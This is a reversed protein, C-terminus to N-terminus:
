RRQDLDDRRDLLARRLTDDTVPRGAALCDGTFDSVSTPASPRGAATARMRSPQVPRNPRRTVRSSRGEFVLKLYNDEDGYIILGAQPTTAAYIPEPRGQDDVSGPSGAPLDLLVPEPGINTTQYLDTTTVPLKLSGGGVALDPGAAARDVPLRCRSGDFEDDPGIVGGFDPTVNFFDFHADIVPGAAPGAMAVLGIQPNTFGATSKRITSWGSWSATDPASIWTQGDVSYSPTLNTGDSALKLWVTDPFDAGLNASNAEQAAGAQEHSFQVIRAAKDGSSSRGEFVLKAYNDDDGYVLIGAQAYSTYMAGTVKTTVEWAGDPMAQLVLNGANNTTQYLDKASRDPHDAPWGDRHARGGSPPREM